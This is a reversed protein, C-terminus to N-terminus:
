ETLPLVVTFTTGKGYESDVSISGNALTLIRYVINLGIGNGSSSHSSDGQFFKEFIRSKTENNM